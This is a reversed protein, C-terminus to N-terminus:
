KDLDKDFNALQAQYRSAVMAALFTLTAELALEAVLVCGFFSSTSDLARSFLGPIGLTMPMFSLTLLSNHHYYVHMVQLYLNVFKLVSGLIKLQMPM